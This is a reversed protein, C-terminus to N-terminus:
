KTELTAPNPRLFRAVTLLLLVAFSVWAWGPMAPIPVPSSVGYYSTLAPSGGDAKLRFILSSAAPYPTLNRMVVQETGNGLDQVSVQTFYASGSQWTTGGDGSVQLYLTADADIAVAYSFYPYTKGDTYVQQTPAVASGALAVLPNAGLMYKMLNSVGDGAPSAQPDIGTMGFYYYEWWDPIGNGTSSHSVSLLNAEEDPVYNHSLGNAQTASQLRGANDYFFTDARVTAGLALAFVSLVCFSRAMGGLRCNSGLWAQGSLPRVSDRVVVKKDAPM